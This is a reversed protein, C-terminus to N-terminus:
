SCHELRVLELVSKYHDPTLEDESAMSRPVFVLLQSFLYSFRTQSVKELDARQKDVEPTSSSGEQRAKELAEIDSKIKTLLDSFGLVEEAKSAFVVQAM